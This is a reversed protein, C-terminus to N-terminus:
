IDLNRVNLANDEIFQRRPDVQDGMLITFINDAEVSDDVRVQLLTRTEPNMTTDWLQEPNMEGLGKYRQIYLGKRGEGLLHDLMGFLDDFRREDNGLVLTFPAAGLGRFELALARLREYEPSVLFAHDVRTEKSSGNERTRFVVRLCAHEHDDEVIPEVELGLQKSLFAGAEELVPDLAARDELTKKSMDSGLIAKLIRTDRRKELQHLTQRYESLTKALAKLHAGSLPESRGPCLLHANECAADLLYDELSGDDKLYKEAKGRKVRYLPPQAIYIYGRGVLEAM